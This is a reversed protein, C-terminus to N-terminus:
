WLHGYVLNVYKVTSSLFKDGARHNVLDKKRVESVTPRRMKPNHKLVRMPQRTDNKEVCARFCSLRISGLERAQEPSIEPVYESAEEEDEV